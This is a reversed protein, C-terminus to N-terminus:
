KSDGQTVIYFSQFQKNEGNFPPLHPQRKLWDKIHELDKERSNEDENLEKRILSSQEATPQVLTM